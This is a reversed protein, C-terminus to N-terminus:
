FKNVPWSPTHGGLAEHIGLAADMGMKDMTEVNLAADHPTVIMHDLRLLRNDQRFPEEAMVDVGAGYIRGQELADYLDDEDVIGGRACNILSATPKMLSLLKRNVMKRTQETEPLHLSVFDAEAFVQEATEVREIYDLAADAPLMPDYGIVKMDLGLAAKKAVQRGIRGCGIVGLTKGAVEQGKCTNRTKWGNGLLLQRNQYTLNRACALILMITHEAVANSNANPTITVWIKKDNCYDMDINDYGVGHRGIVKLKPMKELIERPYKATRALLADAEKAQEEFEQSSTGDVVVVEYGKERLFEKGPETIDEPIIVKYSM